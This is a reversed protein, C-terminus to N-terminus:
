PARIAPGKPTALLLLSQEACCRVGWAKEFVDYYPYEIQPVKLEEV